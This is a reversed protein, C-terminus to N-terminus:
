RFVKELSDPEISYRSGKYDRLVNIIYDEKDSYHFIIIIIKPKRCSSAGIAVSAM